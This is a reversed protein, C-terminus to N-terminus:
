KVGDSVDFRVLLISERPICFESERSQIVVWERSVARLTGRVSVDVGNVNDTAFTVPLEGGAGLADGRRFQVICAQGVKDIFPPEEVVHQSGSCGGIGLVGMMVIVAIARM